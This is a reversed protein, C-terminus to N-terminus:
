PDQNGLLFKPNARENLHESRKMSDTSSKLIQEFALPQRERLKVQQRRKSKALPDRLLLEGLSKQHGLSIDAAQEVSRASRSIDLSAGIGLIPARITQIERVLAPRNDVFGHGLVM